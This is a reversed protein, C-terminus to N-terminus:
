ISCAGGAIGTRRILRQLKSAIVKGTITHHPILRFDAGIDPLISDPDTYGFVSDVVSRSNDYLVCLCVSDQGANRGPKGRMNTVTGAIEAQGADDVRPQVVLRLAKQPPRSEVSYLTVRESHDKDLLDDRLALSFGLTMNLMM